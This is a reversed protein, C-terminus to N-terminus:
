VIRICKEYIVYKSYLTVTNSTLKWQGSPIPPQKYSTVHGPQPALTVLTAHPGVPRHNHPDYQVLPRQFSLAATQYTKRVHEQYGTVDRSM